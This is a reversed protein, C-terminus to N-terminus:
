IKDYLGANRIEEPFGADAKRLMDLKARTV